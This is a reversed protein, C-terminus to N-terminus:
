TLDGPIGKVLKAGDGATGESWTFTSTFFLLQPSGQHRLPQSDAQRHLRCPNTGRDPFIGCAVSCSPRHAMAVSGARGSGTSRLPLPWSLSLGAYRFFLFLFMAECRVFCVDVLTRSKVSCHIKSIKTTDACVHILVYLHKGSNKTAACYFHLATKIKALSVNLLLKIKFGM